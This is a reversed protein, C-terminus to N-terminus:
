EREMWEPADRHGYEEPSDTELCCGRPDVDCNPYAFCGLHPDQKVKKAM